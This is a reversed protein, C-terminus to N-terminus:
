LQEKTLMSSYMAGAQNVLSQFQWDDEQVLCTITIDVFLEKASVKIMDDDSDMMQQIANSEYVVKVINRLGTGEMLTDINGPLDM